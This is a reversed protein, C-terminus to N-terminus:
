FKILAFNNMQYVTLVTMASLGVKVQPLLDEKKYGRSSMSQGCIYIGVGMEALSEILEKNPNEVKYKEKYTASSLADKTSGGHLVFALHINEPPVGSRVHMNYYRHLSSIISNQISPDTQKKAVDFIAKFQQTTDVPFDTNEISYVPGFDDFVPGTSSKVGQGFSPSVQLAFIILLCLLASKLIKKM